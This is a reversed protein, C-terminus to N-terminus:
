GRLRSADLSQTKDDELVRQNRRGRGNGKKKLTKQPKKKDNQKKSDQAKSM